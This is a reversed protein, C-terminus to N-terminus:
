LAAVSYRQAPTASNDEMSAPFKAGHAWKIGGARALPCVRRCLSIVYRNSTRQGQNRLAGGFVGVSRNLLKGRREQGNSEHCTAVVQIAVSWGGGFDMYLKAEM